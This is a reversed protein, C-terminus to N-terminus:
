EISVNCGYGVKPLDLENVCMRLYFVKEGQDFNVQQNRHVYVILKIISM